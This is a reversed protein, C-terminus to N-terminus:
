QKPPERKPDSVRRKGPPFFYARLAARLVDARKTKPKKVQEAKTKENIAELLESTVHLMLRIGGEGELVPRGRGQKKKMSM